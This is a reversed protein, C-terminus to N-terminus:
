VCHPRTQLVRKSLVQNRSVESAATVKVRSWSTRISSPRNVARIHEDSTYGGSSEQEALGPNGRWWRGCDWLTLQQGTEPEERWTYIVFGRLLTNLLVILVSTQAAVSAHTRPGTDGGLAATSHEASCPRRWEQRHGDHGQLGAGEAAPVHFHGWMFRAAHFFEGSARYRHGRPGNGSPLDTGTTGNKNGCSRTGPRRGLAQSTLVPGLGASCTSVSLAESKDSLLWETNTRLIRKCNAGSHVFGNCTRVSTSFM